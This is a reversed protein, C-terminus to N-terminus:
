SADNRGKSGIATGAIFLICAGIFIVVCTGTWFDVRSTASDARLEANERLGREHTVQEKLDKHPEAAPEEPSCSTLAGISLAIAAIILLEIIYKMTRPKAKPQPKITNNPTIAPEFPPAPPRDPAMRGRILWGAGTTGRARCAM